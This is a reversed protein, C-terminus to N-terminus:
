KVAGTHFAIVMCAEYMGEADTDGIGEFGYAWDSCAQSELPAAVEDCQAEFSGDALQIAECNYGRGAGELVDAMAEAYSFARDYGAQDQDESPAYGRTVDQDCDAHALRAGGLTALIGLFGGVLAAKINNM